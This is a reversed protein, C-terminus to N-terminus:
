ERNLILKLLKRAEQIRSELDPKDLKYDNSYSDVYATYGSMIALDGSITYNMSGVGYYLEIDEHACTQSIDVLCNEPFTYERKSISIETVYDDYDYEQTLENYGEISAIAYQFQNNRYLDWSFTIDSGHQIPELPKHWVPVYPMRFNGSVERSQNVKNDNSIDLKYKIFLDEGPQFQYPIDLLVFDVYGREIYQSMDEGNISISHAFYGEFDENVIKDSITVCIETGNVYDFISVLINSTYIENIPELEFFGVSENGCGVFALCISIIVAIYVLRKM